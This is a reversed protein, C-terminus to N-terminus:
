LLVEGARHICGGAPPFGLWELHRNVRHPSGLGRIRSHPRGYGDVSYTSPQAWSNSGQKRAEKSGQKSVQIGTQRFRGLSCTDNSRKQRGAGLPYIALRSWAWRLRDMWYCLLHLCLQNTHAHSHPQTDTTLQEAGEWVVSLSNNLSYVPMAM